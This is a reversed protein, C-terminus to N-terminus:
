QWKRIKRFLCCCVAADVVSTHTFVSFYINEYIHRYIGKKWVIIDFLAICNHRNEHILFPIKHLIFHQNKEQFRRFHMGFTILVRFVSALAIIWWMVIPSVLLLNHYPFLFSRILHILNSALKWLECHAIGHAIMSHWTFHSSWVSYIIFAIELKVLITWSDDIGNCKIIAMQWCICMIM